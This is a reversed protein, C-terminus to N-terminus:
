MIPIESRKTPCGVLKRGTPSIQCIRASRLKDRIHPLLEMFYGADLFFVDAATGAAISTPLKDAYGQWPAPENVIEIDPHSEMFTEIPVNFADGWWHTVRISTKEATEPASEGAPGATPVACAALAMGAVTMGSAKLFARRSLNRETSM